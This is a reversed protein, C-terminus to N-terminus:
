RHRYRIINLDSVICTQAARMLTRFFAPNHSTVGYTSRGAWTQGPQFPLLRHIGCLRQRPPHRTGLGANGSAGNAKPSVFPPDGNPAPCHDFSASRSLKWRNSFDDGGPPLTWVCHLHDPLVVWADIHFPRQQKTRRVADRLVDIHRVLWDRRRELLNVTVFYTGGPVRFRRYNSMAVHYTPVPDMPNRCFLTWVGSPPLPDRLAM